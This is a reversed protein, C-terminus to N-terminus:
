SSLQKRVWAGFVVLLTVALGFWTFAYSLHNNLPRPLESAAVPETNVQGKVDGERLAVVTFPEVDVALAKGIEGPDLSFFRRTRANDGASLWGRHEPPRVYGVVRVESPPLVVPTGDMVWGLLVLVAPAGPRALPVVLQSGMRAGQPTDRVEVGYHATLPLWKGSLTVKEFPRPDTGLVGAPLKEARDIEALLRNKWQLRQVQWVGLGVLITFLFLTGIAPGALRKM